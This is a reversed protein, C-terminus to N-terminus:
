NDEDEYVKLRSSDVEILKGLEYSNDEFDIADMPLIKIRGQDNFGYVWFQLGKYIVVQGVKM